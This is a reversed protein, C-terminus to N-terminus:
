NYDKQGLLSVVLFNSLTLNQFLGNILRFLQNLSILFVCGELDDREHEVKSHCNKKYESRVVVAVVIYVDHQRMVKCRGRVCVGDPEKSCPTGDKAKGFYYFLEGGYPYCFLLCHNDGESYFLLFHKM